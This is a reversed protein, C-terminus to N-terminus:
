MEQWPATLAKLGFPQITRFLVLGGITYVVIALVILGWHLLSTLAVAFLSLIIFIWAMGMFLACKPGNNLPDKVRLVIALVTLALPLTLLGISLPMDFIELHWFIPVLIFAGLATIAELPMATKVKLKLGVTSLNYISGGREVQILGRNLAHFTKRFKATIGVGFTFVFCFLFFAGIFSNAPAVVLWGVLPLIADGLAVVFPGALTEKFRFPPVSYALGIFWGAILAIILSYNLTVLLLAVLLLGAAINQLVLANRATGADLEGTVLPNSPWYLWDEDRDAYKNAFEAISYLIIATAMFLAIPGWEPAEGDLGLIIAGIWLPLYM